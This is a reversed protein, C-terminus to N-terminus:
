VQLQTSENTIWWSPKNRKTWVCNFANRKALWYYQRYSQVPCDVKYEDPMALAFNTMPGAPIIGSMSQLQEIASQCAHRKEYRYTYEECLAEAHIAAWEFNSRTKGCFLTCPHNKHTEKYPTGSKTLPVDKDTAGHKRVASTLQQTLELIMKVCHKDVHMQAAVIPDQDLVFINM